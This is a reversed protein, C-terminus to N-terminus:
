PSLLVVVVVLVELRHPLPWWPLCARGLLCSWGPEGLRGEIRGGDHWCCKSWCAGVVVVVGPVMGALVVVGLEELLLLAVEEEEKELLLLLVGSCTVAVHM